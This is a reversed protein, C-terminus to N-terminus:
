RGHVRGGDGEQLLVELLGEGAQGGLRAPQEM